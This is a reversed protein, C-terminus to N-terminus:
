RLLKQINSLQTFAEVPTLLNLDLKELWDVAQQQKSPSKKKAADFLLYQVEASMSKGRKKEQHFPSQRTSSEELHSLIERARLIVEQPLGALSGVHIGYSKDTGGRVIKRLFLVQEEHERVAVNYNVAGISELQTLEWYHTAFLTKAKKSPTTLLYEAIAWAISIGDYTSTGRGIEDLIVLSRPTASHLINATEIMEVMFTSQGRSLDDNAGIRTFVKDVIGIHASQAPIFSGIQAMITLLAVQRIYTSKGAMNPGTLIHLRENEDLETDNPVFKEGLLAAEIVPHRGAKITLISSEDVTPRVYGYHHAAQALGQLSDITALHQAIKVIRDTYEVVQMRLEEFLETELSLAREQATLVKSEYNKLEVTVYREGNVLTQRREFYDPVQDTQGKSVEIYYGFMRNFGVKATRIGIKERLETQYKALWNKGERSLNRLEDLEVHYGQRFVNGETLRLPPTDNIAKSILETLEPLPTLADVEHALLPTKSFSLLHKLSPLPELSDKLSILDRPSTFGSSIKIILREIDRVKGLCERVSDLNARSQKFEAVADQRNLIEECTTLPQKIWRHTLRAGMPTVTHDIISLLTNKRGVHQSETLELNRQTNEDISMFLSNSYSTIQRVHATSLCLVEQLYQLLSGAANIAATMTKLGFGDLSRVKFHNLLFSYCFQYDFHWDETTNILFSYHSSLEKFLEAHREKFKGSVLFEAPRFRFCETQLESVAIFEIVKFEATTLDLLALGFTEGVQVISAFFNNTKESLLSSNLVTGPTVIRVVERKVLGKCKKPDEMQEAIAVRYGRSILRDLYSDCAHHPVGAMPIDQRKTLSLELEKALLVADEYFAEYFDGMRFLLLSDKAQKKCAHWQAMMPSIKSNEERNEPPLSM